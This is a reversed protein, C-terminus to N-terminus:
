FLGKFLLQKLTKNPHTEFLVSRIVSLSSPHPIKYIAGLM